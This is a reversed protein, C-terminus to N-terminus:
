TDSNAGRMDGVCSDLEINVTLETGFTICFICISMGQNNDVCGHM